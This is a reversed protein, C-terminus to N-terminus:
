GGEPSYSPSTSPELILAGQRREGSPCVSPIDHGVLGDSAQDGGDSDQAGGQHCVLDPDGDAGDLLLGGQRTACSLAGQCGSTLLVLASGAKHGWHPDKRDTFVREVNRHLAQMIGIEPLMTPGGKEAVLM